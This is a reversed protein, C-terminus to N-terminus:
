SVYRGKKRVGKTAVMWLDLGRVRRKGASSTFGAAHLAHTLTKLTFGGKHAMFAHGAALAAGHGYFIDLPTIPGAPSNYNYAADELKDAAVFQAVSQLDPCTVVLFGASRIARLFEKFVQPVEHACIHEINHVAYVAGVSADSVESIDLMSGLIDPNNASDIDLRLEKWRAAQFAAPLKAVNQRHGPEVHLVVRSSAPNNMVQQNEQIEIKIYLDILTNELELTFGDVDM